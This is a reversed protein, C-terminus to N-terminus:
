ETIEEKQLGERLLEILNKIQDEEFGRYALMFIDGGRIRGVVQFLNDKNYPPTYVIIAKKQKIKGGIDTGKDFVPTAILIKGSEIYEELKISQNEQDEGTVVFIDKDTLKLEDKITQFLLKATSVYQSYIYIKINEDILKKLLELLKEIKKDKYALWKEVDSHEALISRQIDLRNSYLFWKMIHNYLIYKSILTMLQNIDGDTLRYTKKLKAIIHPNVLTELNQEYGKINKKKLFQKVRQRTKLYATNLVEIFGNIYGDDILVPDNIKYTLQTVSEDKIEEKIVECLAPKFRNTMEELKDERIQYPMLFIKTTKYWENLGTAYNSMRYKEFFDRAIILDAAEDIIVLDFDKEKFYQQKMFNKFSQITTAFGHVEPLNIKPLIKEIGKKSITPNTLVNLGYFLTHSEKSWQAVLNSRPSLMLAKKVLGDNILESLIALAIVTKGSGQPLCIFYNRKITKKLKDKVKNVIDQQYDRLQNEGRLGSLQEAM